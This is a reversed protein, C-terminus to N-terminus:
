MTNTYKFETAKLLLLMRCILISEWFWTEEINPIGDTKLRSLHAIYSKDLLNNGNPNVDFATKGVKV